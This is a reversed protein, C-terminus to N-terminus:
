VPSAGQPGICFGPSDPQIWILGHGTLCLFLLTCLGFLRATCTLPAHAASADPLATFTTMLHLLRATRRAVTAVQLGLCCQLSNPKPQDIVDYATHLAQQLHLQDVLLVVEAADVAHVGQQHLM